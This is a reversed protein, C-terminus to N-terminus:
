LSEPDAGELDTIGTVRMAEEVLGDDLDIEIRM